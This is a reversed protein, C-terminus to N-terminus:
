LLTTSMQRLHGVADGVSISRRARVCSPGRRRRSMRRFGAKLRSKMIASGAGAARRLLDPLQGCARRMAFGDPSIMSVGM